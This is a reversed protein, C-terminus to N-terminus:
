RASTIRCYSPLIVKYMQLLMTCLMNQLTQVCLIAARDGGANEASSCIQTALPQVPLVNCSLSHPLTSFPSELPLVHAECHVRRSVCIQPKEELNDFDHVSILYM